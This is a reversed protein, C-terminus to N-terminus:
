LSRWRPRQMCNLNLELQWCSFRDRSSFGHFFMMSLFHLCLLCKLFSCYNFNFPVRGVWFLLDLLRQFEHLELPILGNRTLEGMTKPVSNDTEMFGRFEPHRELRWRRAFTLNIWCFSSLYMQCWRVLSIESLELKGMGGHEGIFYSRMCSVSWSHSALLM